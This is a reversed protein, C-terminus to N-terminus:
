MPINYFHASNEIKAKFEKKGLQAIYIIKVINYKNVTKLEKFFFKCTNLTSEWWLYFHKQTTSLPRWCYFSEFFVDTSKICIHIYTESFLHPLVSLLIFQEPILIKSKRFYTRWTYSTYKTYSFLLKPTCKLKFLYKSYEISGYKLEKKYNIDQFVFSDVIGWVNNSFTKQKNSFKIYKSNFYKHFQIPYFFLLSKNQPQALYESGDTDSYGDVLSVHIWEVVNRNEM